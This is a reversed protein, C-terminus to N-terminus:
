DLSDASVNGNYTECTETKAFTDLLLNVIESLFDSLLSTESLGDSRLDTLLGASLRHPTKKQDIKSFNSKGTLAIKRNRRYKNIYLNM